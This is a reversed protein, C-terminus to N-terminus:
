IMGLMTARAAAQSGTKANLKLRANRLRQKVASESVGLASAIEKMLLGNKVLGLTELEAETLNKPRAHARHLALLGAHIQDLEEETYDRDSRFFFGFSRGGGDESDQCCAVAGFNLGHYKALELVGQSDKAALDRMRVHGQNQYAWIMAPDYVGLGSVTYERVWSEPLCNQEVMPFAFGIRIAIYHGAPALPHPVGSRVWETADPPGTEACDPKRARM